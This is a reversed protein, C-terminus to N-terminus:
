QLGEMFAGLRTKTREVDYGNDSAGLDVFPVQLWDHLRRVEAHWTDCWVFRHLIAGRISRERIERQIWMFLLSNPRRFPDPISGFYAEAIAALPDEDLLRRHIPAALTREGTETADLAIFGGASEVLDYINRHDALVPGGVLALPPGVQKRSSKKYSPAQSSFHFEAAMETWRRASVSGRAARLEERMGAYALACERIRDPTPSVGGLTVLFRGLRELESAYLGIAGTEQWTHPVHMLFTPTDTSAAVLDATRRMQDCASTLVVATADSRTVAYNGFARAYPCLGTLNGIPADIPSAPPSVRRPKLGHAAIWEAPVFPCSYYISGDGDKM